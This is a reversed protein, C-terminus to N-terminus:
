KLLANIEDTIDIGKDIYALAPSLNELIYVVVIKNSKAYAEITANVKNLLTQVKQEFMTKIMLDYNKKSKEILDNEKVYLEFKVLDNEKLKAKITEITEKDSVQYPKLLTNIKETLQNTSEQIEKTYLQKLSDVEKTNKEFGELSKLIKNQEIYAITPQNVNKTKQATATLPLIAIFVISLLKLNM